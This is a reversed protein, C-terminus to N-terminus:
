PEDESKASRVPLAADVEGLEEDDGLNRKRLVFIGLVVADGDGDFGGAALTAIAAPVIALVSAHMALM